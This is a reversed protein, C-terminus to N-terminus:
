RRLGDRAPARAHTGPWAHTSRHPARRVARSVDPTEGSRNQDANADDDANSRLPRRELPAVDAVPNWVEDDPQGEDAGAHDRQAPSRTRAPRSVAVPNVHNRPM